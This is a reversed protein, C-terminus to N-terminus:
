EEKKGKNWGLKVKGTEDSRALIHLVIGKYRKKKLVDKDTISTDNKPNRLPVDLAINTGNKLGYTGAVDVNLVSSSIQMPAIEIQDGHLTFTADLNPVTINKLNRFPFAFKAVGLLPQFNVLAGNKLNITATGNISGPELTGKNTIGATIKTDASLTGKLNEYTFDKLGFNDFAYFFERVNVNSVVTNLSLRNLVEGKKLYGNMELSGGAHKLGVSKIILGESTTQLNAHADTALFKLYHINAADLHIAANGKQLVNNLQKTIDGSNATHVAAPKNNSGLFGLFEGLYMQKSHIQLDLLIKEPANYYLNMFNNVRGNMTIVSQGSQVRINSLVLDNGIFDLSFSTNPFVLNDPKYTIRANKLTIRGAVIPKNIRYDIIDGKYRLKIDARGSSFKLVKEGLLGNLDAAPFSSRFNGTAIPKELNVISGTDITFPLNNYLGKMGVLRIVSNEDNLGKHNVYNNTFIGNFSCNTLTTGPISVTNNNVGATVYLLPDGGGFSGSIVATVAIPKEINFQNLKLTINPSLLASARRWLLQAASLHIVFGAPKKGTEFSADIKFPDDGIDLADAAVTIRGTATNYGAKLDGEVAKNKIFSGHRTSFAMSKATVDMSLSAHWGTDPYNMRGNLGNVIFEFLKNAKQDTIKLGVNSLRFTELQANSNSKASTDQKKTPVKKFVSTNSYGSTDTYIDITANSIDIHRIAVTGKLLAVANISVSVDKADLLSHHHEGFHKDRLLVNKLALSVYPFGKFFRPEMDGITILGDINNNLETTVLKLVKAKNFNVYLMLGLLVLLILAAMGGFIKLAIKLWKPM